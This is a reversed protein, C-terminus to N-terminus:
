AHDRRRRLWAILAGPNRGGFQVRFSWAAISLLAAVGLMLLGRIVPNDIM